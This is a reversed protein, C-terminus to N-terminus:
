SWFTKIFAIFLGAASASVLSVLSMFNDSTGPNKADATNGTAEQSEPATPEETQEAPTGEGVVVYGDKTEIKVGAKVLQASVDVTAGDKTVVAALIKNLFKGDSIIGRLSEAVIINGDEDTTNNLAPNTNDILIVPLKSNGKSEFTGGNIAYNMRARGIHLVYKDKAIFNGGLINLSANASATDNTAKVTDIVYGKEATFTGGNITVDACYIKLATGNAAKFNGNDITLNIGKDVKFIQNTTNYTGGKIVMSAAEENVSPTDNLSETLVNNVNYTGSVLIIKSNHKAVNVLTANTANIISNDITVNGGNAEILAKTLKLYEINVGNLSLNGGTEVVAFPTTSHESIIKGGNIIFNAKITYRNDRGSAITIVHDNAEITIDKVFTRATNITLDKYLTLTGGDNTIKNVADDLSTYGLGDVAASCAVNGNGTEGPKNCTTNSAAKVGGVM